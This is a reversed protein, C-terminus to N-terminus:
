DKVSQVPIRKPVANREKKLKILVVGNRHEASVKEADVPAPLQISRKFSGFRRESRWFSEDKKETIEKKEGSLTLLRDSVTIDLEKPDVGPVEARVIVETDSETVDMSPMWAGLSGFGEGFFGAPEFFRDFLRDIENRFQALPAGGSLSERGDECRKGRWPILNM